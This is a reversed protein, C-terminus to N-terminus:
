RMRRFTADDVFVADGVIPQLALLSACANLPLPPRVARGDENVFLVGGVCHVVEIYGGVAQQLADLCDAPDDVVLPARTGTTSLVLLTASM